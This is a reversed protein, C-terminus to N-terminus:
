WRIEEKQLRCMAISGLVKERLETECYNPGVYIIYQTDLIVTIVTKHKVELRIRSSHVEPYAVVSVTDEGDVVQLGFGQSSSVLRFNGRHLGDSGVDDFTFAKRICLVM